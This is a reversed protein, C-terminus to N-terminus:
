IWSGPDLLRSEPDQMWSRPGQICAGPSRWPMSCDRIKAVGPDTPGQYRGLVLSDLKISRATCGFQNSSRVVHRGGGGVRPSWGVGWQGGGGETGGVGGWFHVCIEFVHRGPAERVRGGFFPRMNQSKRREPSPQVHLGSMGACTEYLNPKFLVYSFLFCM